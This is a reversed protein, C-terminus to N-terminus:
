AESAAIKNQWQRVKEAIERQQLTTLEGNDLLLRDNVWVHSVRHASATYVLQSIPNYLPLSSLDSLSGPGSLDVATIDAYKGKELSGIRDELGLARAGNITAMELATHASIAEANGAVAKGLLAATQMENFIDLSNNSAASDTGLAVNIDAGLLGATPCFGSALKLNSKPCHIVHSNCSQLTALDEANVQTMHVCQTQPSLLNLQRLREIPRKGTERVADDVETATEHLHIQICSDLEEAYVAIKELHKDLVTYPAHPGFAVHIRDSDNYDDHLQLGKHLYEEADRAWASPFDIVPFALQCRIGSTQAVRAAANPFFYMDSFFTTGAKIMEAIALETGHSVFEESVFRAEAPWIYHELWTHLSHDDAYGRFLSMAAHGHMNILGPVLVHDPLATHHEPDFKRLAETQPLIAVIRGASVAIACDEYVASQPIVPIIWKSSILHDIPEM